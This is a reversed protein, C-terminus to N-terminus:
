IIIMTFISVSFVNISANNKINTKIEKFLKEVNDKQKMMFTKKMTKLNPDKQNQAERLINFYYNFEHVDQEFRTEFDKYRYDLLM